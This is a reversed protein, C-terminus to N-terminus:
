LDGLPPLWVARAGARANIKLLAPSQGPATFESEAIHRYVTTSLFRSTVEVPRRVLTELAYPAVGFTAGVSRIGRWVLVDEPLLRALDLLDYAGLQAERRALPNKAAARQVEEYYRGRGQWRRVSRPREDVCANKLRPGVNIISAQPPYRDM